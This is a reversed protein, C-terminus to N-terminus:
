GNKVEVTARVTVVAGATASATGINIQISLNNADTGVVWPPHKAVWDTVNNVRDLTLVVDTVAPTFPLGHAIVLTKVGTSDIAANGSVVSKTKLGSVNRIMTGTGNDTVQTTNGSCAGGSIRAGTSGAQIDYGVLNGYVGVNTISVDDCSGVIVGTGTNDRITGNSIECGDAEVATGQTFVLGHLCSRLDFSTVKCDPASIRMGQGFDKVSVDSIITGPVSIRIGYGTAGDNGVLRVGRGSTPYDPMTEAVDVQIRLGVLNTEASFDFATLNEFWCGSRFDFAALPLSLDTALGPNIATINRFVNGRGDGDDNKWDISDSGTNEIVGNEVTCYRLNTRQGGIGYYQCDHIYFDRITIRECGSAIDIGHFHDSPDTPAVQNARNGDIEIGMISSNAIPVLDTERQGFQVVHCDAGAELTLVTAGVGHGVLHVNHHGIYIARNNNWNVAGPNTNTVVVNGRPLLVSGGGAAGVAAVAANIAATNQAATNGADYGYSEALTWMGRLLAQVTKAVAGAGPELHSVLASGGPAALDGRILSGDEFETQKKRLSPVTGGTRTVVDTTEDGNVIAALDSIDEEADLIMQRTLAM